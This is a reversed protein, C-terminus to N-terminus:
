RAVDRLFAPTFAACRAHATCVYRAGGPPLRRWLAALSAAAARPDDSYGRRAPAFGGARTHTVADGVFLVGRFLYAASGATHGPVLYARLTDAGFAFVTDAAFPRVDLRGPAPLHAPKLREAWRPIWGRPRSRGTLRAAEPAAVHFRAGRVAPWAAVHDRHAHTLFVLAVDAPEAGLAALARRLARGHGWWGLDVLLVGASTRAAYILSANPGGTLAVASRGPVALPAVARRPAGCGVAAALAVGAAASRRRGRAPPRPAADRAAAPPVSM